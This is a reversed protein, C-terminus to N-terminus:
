GVAVPPRPGTIGAQELLEREPRRLAMALHQLEAYSPLRQNSELDQVVGTSLGVCSALRTVTFQHKRRAARLYTGFTM